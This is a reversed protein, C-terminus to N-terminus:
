AKDLGRFAANGAELPNDMVLRYVPGLQPLVLHGRPHHHQVVAAAVDARGQAHEFTHARANLQCSVMVRHLLSVTEKHRADAVEMGTHAPQPSHAITASM